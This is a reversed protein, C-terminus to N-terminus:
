FHFLFIENIYCKDLPFFEDKLIKTLFFLLIYLYFISYVIYNNFFLIIIYIAIFFIYSTLIVELTILFIHLLDILSHNNIERLLFSM